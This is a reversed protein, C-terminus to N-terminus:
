INEGRILERIQEEFDDRPTYGCVRCLETIDADLYMVQGEPYPRDYIIDPSQGYLEIVQNRVREMYERLTHSGPGAICYTNGSADGADGLRYLLEAAEAASIYNWIQEGRTCHVERGSSLGSILSAILTNENDGRGYVSLVRTWVHEIGLQKARIRSMRGAMLKAFGYGTEPNCPTDNTLISECRGYEAQSGVGVFRRCGLKNALELADLTHEANELQLRMDMRASGTTGAWGLHYFVADSATGQMNDQANNQLRLTYDAIDRLDCKIVKADGFAGEEILREARKSDPRVFITVDIGVSNLKDILALGIAGTPGTVYAKNM